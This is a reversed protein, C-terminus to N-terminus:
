AREKENIPIFFGHRNVKTGLYAALHLYREVAHVDPDIPPVRENLFLSSFERTGDYGLRRKGGSLVTLIGSKFLGQFDIVIDYDKGRLEKFFSICERITQVCRTPRVIGKIWKKRKSVIIDDLCPHDRIIDLAGEEILWTIRSEPYQARLAELSPLTHIVDGIASLKVILIEMTM